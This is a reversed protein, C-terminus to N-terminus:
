LTMKNFCCFVKSSTELRWFQVLVMNIINTMLYGFVQSFRLTISALRRIFYGITYSRNHLYTRSSTVSKSIEKFFFIWEDPMLFWFLHFILVLWLSSFIVWIKHGGFGLIVGQLLWLLLLYSLLLSFKLIFLVWHLFGPFLVFWVFFFLFTKKNVRRDRCCLKLKHFKM